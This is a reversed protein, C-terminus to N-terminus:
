RRVGEREDHDGHGGGLRRHPERDDDCDEAAPAVDLDVAEGREPVLMSAAFRCSPGRGIRAHIGASGSSPASILRVKPRRNEFCVMWVMATAATPRANMTEAYMTNQGSSWSNWSPWPPVPMVCTM